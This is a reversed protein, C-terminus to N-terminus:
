WTMNADFSIFQWMFLYTGSCYVSINIYHVLRPLPAIPFM